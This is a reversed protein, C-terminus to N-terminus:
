KKVSACTHKLPFDVPLKLTHPRMIQSRLTGGGWRMWQWRRVCSKKEGGEEKRVAGVNRGVFWKVFPCGVPTKQLSAEEEAAGTWWLMPISHSSHSCELSSLLPAANRNKGAAQTLMIHGGGEDRSLLVCHWGVVPIGTMVVARAWPRATRRDLSYFLLHINDALGQSSSDWLRSILIFVPVCLGSVERTDYLLM